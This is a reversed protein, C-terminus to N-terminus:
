YKKVQDPRIEREKRLKLIGQQRALDKATMLSRGVFCVYKNLKEAVSIVQNLRNISSSYTTVIFKGRCERMANEFNETLTMESPTHGPRDAGLSESLLCRVGEM